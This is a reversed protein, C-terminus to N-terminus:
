RRKIVFQGGVPDNVGAPYDRWTCLTDGPAVEDNALASTEANLLSRFQSFREPDLWGSIRGMGTTKDYWTKIESHKRDEITRSLGWDNKAQDVLHKATRNFQDPTSSMAAAALKDTDLHARQENTLNKTHRAVHDLHESSIDGNKLAQGLQPIQRATEARAADKNATTNSVQGNPNLVEQASGAQGNKHLHTAQNAITVLISDILRQCTRLGTTTTTLTDENADHVDITRLLAEIQKITTPM